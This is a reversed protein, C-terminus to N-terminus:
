QLNRDEDHRRQRLSPQQEWEEHKDGGEKECATLGRM